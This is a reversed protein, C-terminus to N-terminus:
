KMQDLQLNLKLVNVRPEGLFGLQRGETSQAILAEVRGPDLGRVRAVRAAQWRAAAPSIHPDLGSGSATLLDVPITRANGPDSARLAAARAAISKRLDENLPGFNSGSSSAANYPKPATASVRPWIYKPDEFWQGILESGVVVGAPGRILSGHAQWPFALQALGTVALPYVVGTLVTLSILM